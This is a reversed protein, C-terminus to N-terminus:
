DCSAENPNVAEHPCPFVMPKKDVHFVSNEWGIHREGLGYAKGNFVFGLRGGWFSSVEPFICKFYVM